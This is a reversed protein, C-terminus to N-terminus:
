IVGSTMKIACILPLHFGSSASLAVKTTKLDFMTKQIVLRCCMFISFFSFSNGRSFQWFKYLYVPVLLWNRILTM